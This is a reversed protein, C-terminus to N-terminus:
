ACPGNGTSPSTPINLDQAVAGAATRNELTGNLRWTRPTSATNTWQACVTYDGFPLGPNPLRGLVNTTGLDIRPTQVCEPDV